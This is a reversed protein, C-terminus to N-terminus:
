LSHLARGRGAPRARGQRPPRGRAHSAETVTPPSSGVRRPAFRTARPRLDRGQAGGAAEAGRGGPVAPLGPRLRLALQLVRRPRRAGRAAVGRARSPPGGPSGSQRPGSTRGFRIRGSLETALPPRFFPKTSSRSNSRPRPSFISPRGGARCCKARSPCSKSSGPKGGCLIVGLGAGSRGTM